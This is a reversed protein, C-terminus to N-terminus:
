VHPAVRERESPRHGVVRSPDIARKDRHAQFDLEREEMQRLATRVVESFNGYRGSARLGEAFALLEPSISVSMTRRTAM